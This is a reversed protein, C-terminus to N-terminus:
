SDLWEELAEQEAATRPKRPEPKAPIPPDQEPTVLPEVETHGPAAKAASPWPSSAQGLDQKM